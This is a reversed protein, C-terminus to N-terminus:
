PPGYNVDTLNLNRPDIYQEQVVAISITL